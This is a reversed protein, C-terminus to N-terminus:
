LRIVQIYCVFIELQKVKVQSISCVSVLLVSATSMISTMLLLM